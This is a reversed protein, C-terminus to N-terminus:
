VTFYRTGRRIGTKRIQGRSLAISLPRSLQQKTMRLAAQLEISNMGDRRAGILRAIEGVIRDGGAPRYARRTKVPHRPTASSRSVDALDSLRAKQLEALIAAAFEEALAKITRHLFSMQTLAM